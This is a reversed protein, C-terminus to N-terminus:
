DIETLFSPTHKNSLSVGSIHAGAFYLNELSQMSRVDSILCGDPRIPSHTETHTSAHMIIRVQVTCINVNKCKMCMVNPSVPKQIHLQTSHHHIFGRLTKQSNSYNEGHSKLYTLVAKREGTCLYEPRQGPEM